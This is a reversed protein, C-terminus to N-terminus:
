KKSPSIWYFPDDKFFPGFDVSSYRNSTVLVSVPPLPLRFNDPNPMPPPMKILASRESVPSCDLLYSEPALLLVCVRGDQATFSIRYVDGDSFSFHSVYHILIFFIDFEKEYCEGNEFKVPLTSDDTMIILQDGHPPFSALLRNITDQSRELLQQHRQLAAARQESMIAQDLRRRQDTRRELEKELVATAAALDDLKQQLIVKDAASQEEAARIKINLQTRDHAMRDMLDEYSKKSAQYKIRADTEM